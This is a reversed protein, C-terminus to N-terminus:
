FMNLFPMKKQALNGCTKNMRRFYTKFGKYFPIL